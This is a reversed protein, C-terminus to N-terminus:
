LLKKPTNIHNTMRWYAISLCCFYHPNQILLLLKSTSITYLITLTQANQICDTLLKSNNNFAVLLKCTKQRRIPYFFSLWCRTVDGITWTDLLFLYCLVIALIKDRLKFPIGKLSTTFYPFSM